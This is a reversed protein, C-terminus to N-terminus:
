QSDPQPSPEANSNELISSTSLALTQCDADLPAPRCGCGQTDFFPVEDYACDFRLNLCAQPDTNLYPSNDAAFCPLSLLSLLGLCFTKMTMQYAIENIMM